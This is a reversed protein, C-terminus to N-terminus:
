PDLGVVQGEKAKCRHEARAETVRQRLPPWRCEQYHVKAQRDIPKAVAEVARQRALAVLLPRSISKVYVVDYIGEADQEYDTAQRKRTKHAPGDRKCHQHRVEQQRNINIKGSIRNPGEFERKVFEAWGLQSYQKRDSVDPCHRM